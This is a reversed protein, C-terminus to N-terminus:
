LFYIRIKDNINLQLKKISEADIHIEQNDWYEAKGRCCRFPEYTAILTDKPDEVFNGTLKGVKSQNIARINETECSYTPGAEFIDIEGNFEFNQKKLMGMAPETNKHVKGLVDRVHKPLLNIYIPHNPMLDEIFQKNKMSLYDANTYDIKLFHKMCYEYFPSHGRTTVVGRMEAIVEKEFRDLYEAM